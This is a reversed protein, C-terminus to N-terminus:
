VASETGTHVTKVLKTTDFGHDKAIAVCREYLENSMVRNRHLIWLRTRATNGVVSYAYNTAMIWYESWAPMCSTFTVQLRSTDDYLPDVEAVGNTTYTWGFTGTCTDSVIIDGSKELYYKSTCNTVHKTGWADFRAIEYWDGMYSQLDM